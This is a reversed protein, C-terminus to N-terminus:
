SLMTMSIKPEPGCRSWALSGAVGGRVILRAHTQLRQRRSGVLPRQWARGQLSGDTRLHDMRWLLRGAATAGARRGCLMWGHAHRLICRPWRDPCVPPQTSTHGPLGSLEASRASWMSTCLRERGSACVPGKPWCSPARASADPPFYYVPPHSTELVRYGAQTRAIEHGDMVVRLLHPAAEVCPPRPYGWVSEQGAGTPHPKPRM